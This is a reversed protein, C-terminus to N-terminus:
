PIAPPIYQHHQETKPLPVSEIVDSSAVNQGRGQLPLLLLFGQCGQLLPIFLGPLQQHLVIQPQHDVDGPPKLVHGGAQLIQNGNSGDPEDFGDAGVPQILVDAQGGIGGPADFVFDQHVDALYGAHLRFDGQILGDIQVAVAVLQQQGVDQAGVGVLDGPRQFVIHVQANQALGQLLQRAPLPLDHQQAIAQLASLLQGM